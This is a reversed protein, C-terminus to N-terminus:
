MFLEHSPRDLKSLFADVFIATSRESADNHLISLYDPFAEILDGRRVIRGRVGLYDRHSIRALSQVRKL